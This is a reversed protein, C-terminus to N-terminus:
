AKKVAHGGFENRLAALVRMAFSSEQRSTFRAFLSAAITPVPVALAIAENVTWRGEGSDNVYAKLGELKPDKKFANEALELLWSRVVSGRNWIGSLRGLDYGYDSAALLELDARAPARAALVVFLNLGPYREADMRAPDLTGPKALNAASVRARGQEDALHLIGFPGHRFGLAQLALRLDRGAFRDGTAPMLRLACIKQEGEPPWDIRVEAAPGTPAAARAPHALTAPGIVGEDADDDDGHDAALTVRPPDVPQLRGRPEVPPSDDPPPEATGWDIMPQPRRVIADMPMPAAQSRNARRREWWLLLLLFLAGALILIPRLWEM